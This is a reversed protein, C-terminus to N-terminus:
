CQYLEDFNCDDFNAFCHLLLFFGVYAGNM